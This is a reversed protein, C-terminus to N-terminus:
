ASGMFVCFEIVDAATLSGITLNGAAESYQATLQAATGTSKVPNTIGLVKPKGAGAAGHPFTYVATAADATCRLHLVKMGGMEYDVIVDFTAAM